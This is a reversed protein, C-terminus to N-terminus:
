TSLSLAPSLHDSKNSHCIARVVRIAINKAAAAAPDECQNLGSASQRAPAAAALIYESLYFLHIDFRGTLRFLSAEVLIWFTRSQAHESSAPM